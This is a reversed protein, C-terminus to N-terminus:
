RNKKNLGATQSVLSSLTEPSGRKADTSSLKTEVIVQQKFFDPLDRRTKRAKIAEVIVRVTPLDM